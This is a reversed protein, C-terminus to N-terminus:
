VFIRSIWFTMFENSTANQYVFISPWSFTWYKKENIWISIILPSHMCYSSSGLFVHYNGILKGIMYFACVYYLCVFLIDHNIVYFVAQCKRNIINWTISKSLLGAVSPLLSIYLCVTFWISWSPLSVDFSSTWSIRIWFHM